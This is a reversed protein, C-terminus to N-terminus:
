NERLYVWSGNRIEPNRANQTVVKTDWVGTLTRRIPPYTDSGDANKSLRPVEGWAEVRYIRRPGAVAIQGLKELDLEVGAIPAGTTAGATAGGTGSTAALDGMLLALAAQPDKVFDAFEKLTTFAMGFQKVKAVLDALAWLQLQNTLVPDDPNKASLFILSAIQQVDKVSRINAKCGGYVTFADGFATWFRDDVGRVLKLEDVTDLFNDRPRYDDALDSYGYEEGAGDAGFAVRDRDIFDIIAAAQTARDRRWGDADPEEFIRDYIPFYFLTDLRTKLTQRSAEKGGACNVNIRDDDTDFRQVGCSGIVGGMGKSSSPPSKGCLAILVMDAMDTIQMGPPIGMLELQSPEINDFRQQLRVMLESINSASRALYSARMADRQNAAAMLDTDTSAAFQNSILLIVGIAVVAALIASGRQGSRRARAGAPTWSLRHLLHRPPM